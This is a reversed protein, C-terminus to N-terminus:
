GRPHFTRVVELLHGKDIHTYINTTEISAHGLFEQVDRLGAGGELLHTAFSHRFTHPTIATSIGVQLALKKILQWIAQRSMPKGYRQSLFISDRADKTNKVLSPRVEKIYRLVAQRAMGGMPVLRQKDGKGTVNIVKGDALLNSLRLGTLESVRLGCGYLVEIIALNKIDLPRDGQLSDLIKEIDQLSLVTPLKRSERPGLVLKAPNHTAIGERQLHKYFGRFASLRRSVTSAAIGLDYLQSVYDSIDLARVSEWDRVNKSSLFQILDMLDIRYADCSNVSLGKELALNTIYSAVEDAARDTNM